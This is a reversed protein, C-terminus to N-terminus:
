YEKKVMVKPYVKLQESWVELLPNSDNVKIFRQSELAM